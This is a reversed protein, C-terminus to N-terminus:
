RTLLPRRLTATSWVNMGLRPGIGYHRSPVAGVGLTEHLVKIAARWERETQPGDLDADNLFYVFVLYTEIGNV